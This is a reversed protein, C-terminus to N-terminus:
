NFPIYIEIKGKIYIDDLHGTESRENDLYHVHIYQGKHTFVGEHHESYFGILDGKQNSRNFLAKSAKHIEHSHKTQNLDKMIIHFNLQNFNGHIRFPWAKDLSYNNQQLVDHILNQLTIMSNLDVELEIKKWEVVNSYVFFPAQISKIVSTSIEKNKTLTSKYIVGNFATIEGQLQNVPGVGILDEQEINKLDIKSSLDTGHMVSKAKGKTHVEQAFTHNVCCIFAILLIRYYIM